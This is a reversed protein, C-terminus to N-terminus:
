QITELIKRLDALAAESDASCWTHVMTGNAKPHKTMAESTFRAGDATWTQWTTAAGFLKGQTTKIKAKDVGNQSAQFSPHGGLYIGCTPGSTGLTVVKRLHYVDFDPGPQATASWGDPTTVSFAETGSGLKRTQAKLDLTRKGAKITTVIKKALAAWSAAQKVGDPSIYFAMFQATGDASGIWAAYVLNADSDGKPPKPVLAFGTLPKQMTLPEIKSDTDGQMKQDAEISAKFDKGTFVFAEYTMMVFRTKDLDMVGRTEDASSADAAMISHGRAELKMADPLAAELRGALLQETHGLKLDSIKDAHAATTMLVIALLFRM